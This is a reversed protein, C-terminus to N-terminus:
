PMHSRLERVLSLGAGGANSPSTKVEPGGPFDRHITKGGWGVGAGAVRLADRKWMPRILHM